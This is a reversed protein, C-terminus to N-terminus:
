VINQRNENYNPFEEEIYEEWNEFVVEEGTKISKNM